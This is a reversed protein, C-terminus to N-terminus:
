HLVNNIMYEDVEYFNFESSNFIANSYDSYRPLHSEIISAEEHGRRKLEECMERAYPRSDLNLCDYGLAKALIVGVSSKREYVNIVFDIDKKDLM